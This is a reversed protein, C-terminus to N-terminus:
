MYVEAHIYMRGKRSQGGFSKIEAKGYGKLSLIDGAGVQADPKLCPLYNRSAAGLKILKAASERSIRFLDSLVADLRPSQVTFSVEKRSLVPPLVAYLPVRRASVSVRGAQTISALHEAVSPLCFVTASQGDVWIDGVFERRVGLGLLAGLYDRHGPTGFAADLTIACLVDEPTFDAEEMRDPLFFLVKRECEPHGGFLLMRCRGRQKAWKLADAQEAPTLFPTSTLLDAHECRLSLDELRRILDGSQASSSNNKVM